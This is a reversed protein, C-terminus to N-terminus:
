GIYIIFLTFTYVYVDHLYVFLALANNMATLALNIKSLTYCIEHLSLQSIYCLLRIVYCMPYFPINSLLLDLLQFEVHFFVQTFSGCKLIKFAAHFLSIAQM